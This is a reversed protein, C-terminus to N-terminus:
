RGAWRFYNRVIETELRLDAMATQGAEAEVVASLRQECETCPVPAIRRLALLVSQRVIRDQEDLADLLDTVHASADSGRKGLQAMAREIQVARLADIEDETWTELDSIESGLRAIVDTPTATLTAAYCATDRKCRRAVEIRAVGLDLHHAMALELQKARDDTAKAAAKRRRDALTRIARADRDSTGIRSLTTVLESRLSEDLKTGILKRLDAAAGDGAIWGYTAAALARRVVPADRDKWVRRLQADISADGIKRLADYVANAQTTPAPAGDVYYAPLEPRSLVGLLDEIAGADGPAAVDGLVIAAYFDRASVPQCTGDPACSRELDQTRFLENVADDKGVLISRVAPAVGPGSAALARRTQMTLIPVRYLTQILIDTADPDGLAGLANVTAGALLAPHRQDNGTARTFAETAARLVAVLALMARRDRYTGLGAVLAIQVRTAAPARERTAAQVLVGLAADTQAEGLAGAALTASDLSRPNSEDLEDIATTLAPMAADWSAPRGTSEYATLFAAKADAASLPRALAVIVYLGRPQRGMANWAEVLAPIARPDGLRELETIAREVELPDDLDAIWRATEPPLEDGREAPRSSTASGAATPTKAPTSPGCSAAAAAAIAVATIRTRNM